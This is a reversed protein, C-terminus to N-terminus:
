LFLFYISREGSLVDVHVTYISSWEKAKDWSVTCFTEAGGCLFSLCTLDRPRMKSIDGKAFRDEARGFISHVSSVPFWVVCWFLPIWSRHKRSISTTTKMSRSYRWKNSVLLWFLLIQPQVISYSVHSQRKESHECFASIKIITKYYRDNIRIYKVAQIHAM